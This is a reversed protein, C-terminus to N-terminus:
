AAIKRDPQRAPAFGDFGHPENEHIFNQAAFEDDALKVGVAFFSRSREAIRLLFAADKM